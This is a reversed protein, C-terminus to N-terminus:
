KLERFRAELAVIDEISILADFFDRGALKELHVLHDGVTKVKGQLTKGSKLHIVLDKGTYLKLNDKISASITFSAGEVPSASRGQASVPVTLATGLMLCIVVSLQFKLSLNM